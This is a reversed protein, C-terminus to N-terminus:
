RAPRIRRARRRLNSSPLTVPAAYRAIASLASLAVRRSEPMTPADGRQRSPGGHNKPTRDERMQSLDGHWLGQGSFQPIGHIKRVRIVEELAQNVAASYSKAGLVRTATELLSADLVLNTRKM